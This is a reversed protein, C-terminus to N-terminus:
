PAAIEVTLNSGANVSFPPAPASRTYSNINGAM